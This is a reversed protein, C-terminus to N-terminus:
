KAQAVCVGLAGSLSAVNGNVLGNGLTATDGLQLAVAAYGLRRGVPHAPAAPPGPFTPRDQPAFEYRTETTASM